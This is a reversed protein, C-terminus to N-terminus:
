FQYHVNKSLVTGTYYSKVRVITILRLRVMRYLVIYPGGNAAAGACYHRDGRAVCYRRRRHVLGPGICLYSYFDTPFGRHIMPIQDGRFTGLTSM